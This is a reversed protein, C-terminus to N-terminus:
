SCLIERKIELPFFLLSISTALASIMSRSVTRLVWIRLGQVFRRVRNWLLLLIRRPVFWMRSFLRTQLIPTFGRTPIFTQQHSSQRHQPPLQKSPRHLLRLHLLVRFVVRHSAASKISSCCILGGAFSGVMAQVLSMRLVAKIAPKPQRPITPLDM